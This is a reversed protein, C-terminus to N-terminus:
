ATELCGPMRARIRMPGRRQGRIEIEIPGEAFLGKLRMDPDALEHPFIKVRVTSSLPSKRESIRENM